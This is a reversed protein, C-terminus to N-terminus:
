VSDRPVLMASFFQVREIDNNEPEEEALQLLIEAAKEGLSKKPMALTTLAPSVMSALAIDDYGMLAIDGPIHLNVQKLAKMAGLAMLDNAAFVADPRKPLCLLKHMAQEGSEMRFNGELIIDDNVPLKALRLARKYGETRQLRGYTSSGVGSSPGTIMAIRKYGLNILFTTAEFAAKESDVLLTYISDLDYDREIAVIPVDPYKKSYKRVTKESVSDSILVIGDLQRDLIFEFSKDALDSRRDSNFIFSYKGGELLRLQLASVIETFYPNLLDSVIIGYANSRRKKLSQAIRNPRYGLADIAREVRDKTEDPVWGTANLVASVTSISVGSQKAVDKITTKTTPM